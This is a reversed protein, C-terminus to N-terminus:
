FIDKIYHAILHASDSVNFIEGGAGANLQKLLHEVSVHMYSLLMEPQVGILFVLFVLPLLTAIERLDMDYLHPKIKPNTENLVVRYYLWAMYTVGLIVGWVSLVGLVIKTKFAGSIILFEGIFANMGPFGIAALSFLAFFTAYVPVSKALGGYDEIVRTHTREYIIGVCLFLAGTVVGHNIMQLIGGELGTQNLTFIGLTVF